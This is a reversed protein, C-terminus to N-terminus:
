PWRGVELPDSSRNIAIEIRGDTQQFRLYYGGARKEVYGEDTLGPLNIRYWGVTAEKSDASAKWSLKLTIVPQDQPITGHYHAANDDRGCWDRDTPTGEDLIIVSESKMRM